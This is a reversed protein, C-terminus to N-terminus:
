YCNSIPIGTVIHTYKDWPINSIGAMNSNYWGVVRFSNTVVLCCLLLFTQIIKM